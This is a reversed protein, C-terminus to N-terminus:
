FILVLLSIFDTYMLEKHARSKDRIHSLLHVHRLLPAASLNKELAMWWAGVRLYSDEASFVWIERKARKENVDRGIRNSHFNWRSISTNLRGFFPLIFM